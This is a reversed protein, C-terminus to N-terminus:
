SCHMLCFLRCGAEYKARARSKTRAAAGCGWKGAGGHRPKQKKIVGVAFLIVGGGRWQAMSVNFVM